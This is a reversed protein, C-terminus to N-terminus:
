KRSQGRRALQRRIQDPTPNFYTLAQSTSSWGFVKCLTLADLKRALLTAATHRSDHFTFGDLGARDRYRRFMADLTQASLGFVYVNDWGRMSEILRMVNNLVPVDRKKGTKRAGREIATVRLLGDSVDEWKLKCIEGARLGTRLALLFAVGVAQTTSRCLGQRYGMARLLELTQWPTILIERHDPKRPKRMDHLPNVKCWKWELRCCEMVASLLSIERLVSGISVQKLRSDRWKGFDDPTLDDLKIRSPVVSEPKLFLTIRVVEWREGDKTPSVEEQYRLLAERLTHTKAKKPQRLTAERQTAWADAERRTRFTESDRVVTGDPLTVRIQARWGNAYKTVSAM